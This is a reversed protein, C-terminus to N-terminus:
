TKVVAKKCALKDKFDDCVRMFVFGRSPYFRPKHGILCPANSLWDSLSPSSHRCEDCYSAKRKPM